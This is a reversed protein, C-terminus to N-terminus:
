KRRAKVDAEAILGLQNGWSNRVLTALAAVEADNLATKFGPMDQGGELIQNVLTPVDKLNDNGPLKPGIGGQGKDGHCGVCHKEYNPTADKIAKAIAETQAQTQQAQVAPTLTLGLSLLGIGLQIYFRNRM